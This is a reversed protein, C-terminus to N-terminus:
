IKTEDRNFTKRFFLKVRDWLRQFFNAQEVSELAILHQTSLVKDDLEISLIGYQEGKQIPATIMKPPRVKPTIQEAKGQPITLQISENLGLSFEATKGEWVQAKTVTKNNAYLTITEFHKFGYNLLKQAETARAEDSKAGLIVAILRTAERKASAVLCYGAEETNGTKLGDVTRDRELLLNRNPQRINNYTYSKEAYLHYYDPHDNIIARALKSLDRASTFHNEAPMGSADAFHTEEMGLDRAKKNMMDVFAQEDGSIYEALAITADNGSQIIVGRLLEGVSVQTGEKVFMRSGGMKWAKISIKVLNSESILGRQIEDIVLYSSMLKTLSAPPLHQDANKEALLSGTSADILIYANAAIEPAAPIASKEEPQAITPQSRAFPIILLAVIMVSLRSYLHM